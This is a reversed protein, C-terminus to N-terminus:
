HSRAAYAPWCSANACARSKQVSAMEEKGPLVRFICLKEATRWPQETRKKPPMHACCLACVLPVRTLETIRTLRSISVCSVM